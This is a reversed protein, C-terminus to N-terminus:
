DIKICIVWCPYVAIEFRIITSFFAILAIIAFDDFFDASFWFEKIGRERGRVWRGLEM